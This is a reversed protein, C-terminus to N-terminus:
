QVSTPNAVAGLISSLREALAEAAILNGAINWHSDQRRYLVQKSSMAQFTDLLDIFVIGRRQLEMSLIRNPLRFDWEDTASVQVQEMIKKQLDRSVQLEDPIVVVILNSHRQRCLDHMVELYSVTNHLVGEFAPNSRRFIKSRAAEIELYKSESMTEEGDHYEKGVHIINGNWHKRAATFYRILSVVYSQFHPPTDFDNGIFLGVLVMDPNLDLGEHFYIALYDRPSTGPIGMNIVEVPRGQRKLRDELLTLVNYEYPVVGFLFSDGIGLIRIHGPQKTVQFEVDKFGHSNLKFSYDAAYPKGRFRNYSRDPFLFAPNGYQYIRLVVEGLLFALAAGILITVFYLVFQKTKCM